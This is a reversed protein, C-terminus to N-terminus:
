ITPRIAAFSTRFPRTESEECTLIEWGAFCIRMQEPTATWEENLGPKVALQRRSFGEYLLMGGRVILAPLRAFFPLHTFGFACVLGFFDAPWCLSNVDAVIWHIRPDGQWIQRARRVGVDSIDVAIIPDFAKGATAIGRGLGTAADLMPGGAFRHSWREGMPHPEPLLSPPDSDLYRRNWKSRDEAISSM